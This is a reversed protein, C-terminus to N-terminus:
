PLGAVNAGIWKILAIAAVIGFAIAMYRFAIAIDRAIAQAAQGHFKIRWGNRNKEIEVASGQNEM